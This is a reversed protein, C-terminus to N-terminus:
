KKKKSNKKERKLETEEEKKKKEIWKGWKKREEPLPPRTSKIETQELYSITKNREKFTKENLDDYVKKHHKAVKIINELVESEVAKKNKYIIGEVIILFEIKKNIIIKALKRGGEELMIIDFNDEPFNNKLTEQIKEIM